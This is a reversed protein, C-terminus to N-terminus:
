WLHGSMISTEVSHEERHGNQRLLVRRPPKCEGNKGGVWGFPDTPVSSICTSGPSTHRCPMGGPTTVGMSAFRSQEHTSFTLSPLEDNEVRGSASTSIEIINYTVM